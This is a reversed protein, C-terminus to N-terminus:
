RFFTQVLIMYFVTGAGISLLTNKKWKHLLIVFVIGLLQPAASYISGVSDKLCYVILLGMVAFPLVTGLYTIYRPPTKHDPFLLFPLFRTTMTGLVVAFVTIIQQAITM